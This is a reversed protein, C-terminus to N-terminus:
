YNLNHLEWELPTQEDFNQYDIIIDDLDMNEFDDEGMNEFDNMIKTLEPDNALESVIHNYIHEPMLERTSPNALELTSSNTEEPNDNNSTLQQTAPNDNNSTLQQTAPNDIRTLPIELVMTDLKEGMKKKLMKKKYYYSNMSKTGTTITLFHPTKRVDRKDPYMEKLEDYMQSAKNYVDPHLKKTYEEIFVARQHSQTLERRRTNKRQHKDM